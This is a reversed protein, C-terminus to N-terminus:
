VPGSEVRPRVKLECYKPVVDKVMSADEAAMWGKWHRLVYRKGNRGKITGFLQVLGHSAVTHSGSVRLDEPAFLHSNRRVIENLNVGCVVKKEPSILVWFKSKWHGVGAEAKGPPKRKGTNSRALRLLAERKRESQVKGGRSSWAKHQDVTTNKLFPSTNMGEGVERGPM